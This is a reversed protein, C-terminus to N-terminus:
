IRLHAQAQWLFVDELPDGRWQLVGGHGVSDGNPGEHRQEPTPRISLLKVGIKDARREVPERRRLHLLARGDLRRRM